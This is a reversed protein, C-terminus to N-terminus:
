DLVFFIFSRWEQAQLFRYRCICSLSYKGKNAHSSLVRDGRGPPTNKLPFGVGMKLAAATPVMMPQPVRVTTPKGLDEINPLNKNPRASLIASHYKHIKQKLDVNKKNVDTSQQLIKFDINLTLFDFKQIGPRDTTRM